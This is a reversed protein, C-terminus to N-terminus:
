KKFYANLIAALVDKARYGGKATKDLIQEITKMDRMNTDRGVSYAILNRTFSRAMTRNASKLRETLQRKAEDNPEGTMRGITDYDNVAFAIPDLRKHCSNCAKNQSHGRVREEFTLTQSSATFQDANITGPPESLRHGFVNEVVWAARQFPRPDVGDSRAVFFNAQHLLGGQGLTEVQKPVHRDLEGANIGYFSAMPAALMRYDSDVLELVPRNQDFMHKLYHQTETAYPLNLDLVDFRTEDLVTRNELWYKSFIELFGEFGPDKVIHDAFDNANLTGARFERYNVKLSESPHKKLFAYSVYRASAVPDKPDYRLRM